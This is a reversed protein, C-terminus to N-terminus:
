QYSHISETHLSGADVRMTHLLEEDSKPPRATRSRPADLRVVASNAHHLMFNGPGWKLDALLRRLCLVAKRITLAMHRPLLSPLM